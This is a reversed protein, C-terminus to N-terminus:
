KEIKLINIKNSYGTCADLAIIGLDEFIDFDDYQSSGQHHIIYHGWGTHWHGCVITKGDERVGDKWAKMGNVWRAYEWDEKPANRWDLNRNLIVDNNYYDKNTSLCPIWGHVFIYDEIEFYDVTNKDIFELVEELLNEEMLQTITSITGNSYHHTSAAGGTEKLQKVCEFLLDEHNGRIYILMGKSHLEKLYRFLRASGLGRDFADGCVVLIHNPNYNDFGANILAVFFQDVYSHIDSTVFYTKSM